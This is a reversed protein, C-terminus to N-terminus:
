HPILVCGAMIFFGPVWLTTQAQGSFGHPPSVPPSPLVPSQKERNSKSNNATGKRAKPRDHSTEKGWKSITKQKNGRSKPEKERKKRERNREQGQAEGGEKGEMM